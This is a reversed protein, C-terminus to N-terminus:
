DDCDNGDDDLRCFSPDSGFDYLANVMEAATLEKSEVIEIQGGVYEGENMEYELSSLSMSPIPEESLVELVFRTKYFKRESAM